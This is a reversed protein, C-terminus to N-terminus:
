PHNQSQPRWDSALKPVARRRAMANIRGRRRSVGTRRATSFLGFGRGRLSLGRLRPFTEGRLSDDRRCSSHEPSRSSRNPSTPCDELRKPVTWIRTPLDRVASRVHWVTPFHELGALFTESPQSFTGFARRFTELCSFFTESPSSFTGNPEPIDWAAQLVNRRTRSHGLASSFTEPPRRFTGFPQLSM